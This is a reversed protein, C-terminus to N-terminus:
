DFSVRCPQSGNNLLRVLRELCDLMLCLSARDKRLSIAMDAFADQLAPVSKSTALPYGNSYRRVRRIEHEIDVVTTSMSQVLVEFCGALEAKQMIVSESASAREGLVAALKMLISQAISCESTIPSLSARETGASEALNILANITTACTEIVGSVLTPLPVTDDMTKSM